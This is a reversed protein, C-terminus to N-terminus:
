APGRKELGDMTKAAEAKALASALLVGQREVFIEALKELHGPSFAGAVWQISGVPYPNQRRPNLEASARLPAIVKKLKEVEARKHMLAADFTPDGEFSPASQEWARTYEVLVADFLQVMSNFIDCLKKEDSTLLSSANVTNDGKNRPDVGLDGWYDPPGAVTTNQFGLFDTSKSSVKSFGVEENGFSVARELADERELADSMMEALLANLHKKIKTVTARSPSSNVLLQGYADYRPGTLGVPPVAPPPTNLDRTGCESCYLAEAWKREGCAPCRSYGPQPIPVPIM